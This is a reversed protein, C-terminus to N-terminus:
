LLFEPEDAKQLLQTDFFRLFGGDNRVWTGGQVDGHACFKVPISGGHM